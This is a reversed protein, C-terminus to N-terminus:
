LPCKYTPWVGGNNKCERYCAGCDKKKGFDCQNSKPQWPNALCAAMGKDCPDDDGCNCHGVTIGGVTVQNCGKYTKGKSQCYSQCHAVEDSECPALGSPDIKNVPNNGM